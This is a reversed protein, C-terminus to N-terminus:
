EQKGFMLMAMDYACDHEPAHKLVKDITFGLCKTDDVEVYGNKALPYLIELATRVDRFVHYKVLNPLDLQTALDEMVLQDMGGRAWVLESSLNYQSLWKALIAFADKPHVDKDSPYYSKKKVIEAQRGWWDVTTTGVTRGMAIQPKVDMKIFISNNLIAEYSQPTNDRIYTMGVSLVVASSRIDLTEIDLALM